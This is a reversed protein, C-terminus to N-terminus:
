ESVQAISFNAVNAKVMLRVVGGLFAKGEQEYIVYNQIPDINRAMEEPSRFVLKGKEEIRKGVVPWMEISGSRIIIANIMGQPPDRLFASDNPARSDVNVWGQEGAGKSGYRIAFFGLLLVILVLTLVDIAAVLLGKM